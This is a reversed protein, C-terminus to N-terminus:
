AAPTEAARRRLGRRRAKAAYMRVDAVRMLADHSEGDEPFVAFGLSISPRIVAGDATEVSLGTV